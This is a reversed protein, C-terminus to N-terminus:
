LIVAGPSFMKKSFYKTKAVEKLAKEPIKSSVHYFSLDITYIHM